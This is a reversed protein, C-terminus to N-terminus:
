QFHWFQWFSTCVEKSILITKIFVLIIEIWNKSAGLQLMNLQTLKFWKEVQATLFPCPQKVKLITEFQRLLMLFRPYYGIDLNADYFGVSFNYFTWAQHQLFTHKYLLSNQMKNFQLIQWVQCNIKFNHNCNLKWIIYHSLIDWFISINYFTQYYEFSIRSLINWATM